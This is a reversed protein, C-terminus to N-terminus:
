NFVQFLKKKKIKPALGIGLSVPTSRDFHISRSPHLALIPIPLSASSAPSGPVQRPSCPARAVAAPVVLAAVASDTSEPSVWTVCCRSARRTSPYTGSTKKKKIYICLVQPWKTQGDFKVAHEILIIYANERNQSEHLSYM